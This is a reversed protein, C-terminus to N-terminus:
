PPTTTPPIAPPASVGNPTANAGGPALSPDPVTSQSGNVGNQQQQRQNRSLQRPAQTQTPQTNSPNLAMGNPTTSGPRNPAVDPLTGNSTTPTDSGTITGNIGTTGPAPAANGDPGQTVGAAGTGPAGGTATQALAASTGLALPVIILALRHM